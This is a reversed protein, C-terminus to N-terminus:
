MLNYTWSNKEKLISEIEMLDSIVKNPKSDILKQKRDENYLYGISYVGANKAAMIDSTSDGVYICDDHGRNLLKCAKMIGEPDPKCNEVDDNSVIIDVYDNLNFLNMGVEISQASKSSVIAVDYKQDKLYKLIETCNEMLTVKEPHIKLNYAKYEEILDLASLNPFYKEFIDKLPPGLVEIKIEDTFAEKTLYKEFLYQYTEIIASETNILTGDFDFLVVPKKLKYFKIFLLIIGVVIFAISTLQAMRLNGVMLSDTRLGEVIYRSIGYWILYFSLGNGRRLFHYKENLKKIIFTFLIFGIINLVSEYLFTPLYYNGNIFMGDKIFNPFNNYYAESVINGHAEQNMFNGWRGIAQALLLNPVIMDALRIFDIKKKYAYYFGYLAGFILGGQIALGGEYIKLIRIPDQLYYNIDYFLCYWLRAGIIGSIFCGMIIDEAVEMKYNAKKMEKFSVYFCAAAGLLILMAYWQISLPGVKLFIQRTPFFEM